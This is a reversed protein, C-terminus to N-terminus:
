PFHFSTKKDYDPVFLPTVVGTTADVNLLRADTGSLSFTVTDGDGDTAEADYFPTTIPSYEDVSGGNGSTIVPTFENVNWVDIAVPKTATLENDSVNVTFAYANQAEYDASAKLTVKRTEQNLSFLSADTGTLSYSLTDGDVDSAMIEYITTTTLANEAIHGTSGSTITPAENVDSITLIISKVYDM